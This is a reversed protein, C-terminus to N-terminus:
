KVLPNRPIGRDSQPFRPTIPTPEPKPRSVPGSSKLVAQVRTFDHEIERSCPSDNSDSALLAYGKNIKQLDQTTRMKAEAALLQRHRNRIKVERAVQPNKELKALEAAVKKPWATGPVKCFPRDQFVVLDHWAEKPQKALIAQMEETLAADDPKGGAQLTFWDRLGASGDKPFEHKLGPWSEFYTELGRSRFHVLAKLSFIYNPDYRGVGIFVQTRKDLAVPKKLRSDIHGGMLIAGGAIEPEAQLLTDVMWGGKSYGALYVRDSDMGYNKVLEDRVHRFAAVEKALDAPEIKYKGQQVYGMGVVIWGKPGTHSRTMRVDPKGNFGHYSFVAPWFQNPGHDEPLSIIIEDTVGPAKLKIEKAVVPLVSSLGVLLIRLLSMISM